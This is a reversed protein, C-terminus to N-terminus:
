RAVGAGVSPQDLLAMVEEDSTQDFSRHLRSVAHPLGPVVPSRLDLDALVDALRRGADSRNDFRM